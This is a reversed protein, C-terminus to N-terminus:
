FLWYYAQFCLSFIYFWVQLLNMINKNTSIGISDCIHNMKSDFLKTITIFRLPGFVFTLALLIKM